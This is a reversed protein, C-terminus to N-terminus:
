HQQHSRTTRCTHQMTHHWKSEHAFLYIFLYICVYIFLEGELSLEYQKQASRQFPRCSGTVVCYVLYAFSVLSL